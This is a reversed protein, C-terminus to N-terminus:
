DVLSPGSSSGFLQFEARGATTAHEHKRLPRPHDLLNPWQQVRHTGLAQPDAISDVVSQEVPCTLVEVSM